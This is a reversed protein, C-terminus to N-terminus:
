DAREESGTVIRLFACQHPSLSPTGPTNKQSIKEPPQGKHAINPVLSNPCSLHFLKKKSNQDFQLTCPPIINRHCLSPTFFFRFRCHSVFKCARELTTHPSDDGRENAPLPWTIVTRDEAMRVLGMLGRRRVSSWDESPTWGKVQRLDATLSTGLQRFSQPCSRQGRLM